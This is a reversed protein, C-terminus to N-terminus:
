RLEAKRADKAAIFKDLAFRDNAAKAEHGAKLYFTKLEHLNLSKRIANCIKEVREEPIPKCEMRSAIARGDGNGDNDDEGIAINFINKLHYRKAYSDASADAHIPTMLDNGKPGKTSPSLDKTYERTVGSRSLYAVFRTKGPTPCDKEGFSLAFGEATYIPRVAKDLKAYSAYRSSTQPNTADASVQRCREQCRSLAEDFAVRSHYEREDRQLNALREIVDIAANNELALSLLDMPKRTLHHVEITENHQPATAM